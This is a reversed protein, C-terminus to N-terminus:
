LKQDIKPGENKKETVIVEEKGYKEADVKLMVECSSDVKLSAGIQDGWEDVVGADKLSRYSMRIKM